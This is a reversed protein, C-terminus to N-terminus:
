SYHIGAASGPLSGRREKCEVAHVDPVDRRLRPRPRPAGNKGNHNGLKKTDKVQVSLIDKRRRNFSNTHEVDTGGLGSPRAGM